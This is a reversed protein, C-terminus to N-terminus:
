ANIVHWDLAVTCLPEAGTETVVLPQETRMGGIGPVYLHVGLAMSMGARFEATNWINIKPPVRACTGLGHGFIPTSCESFGYSDIKDRAKKTVDCIRVGPKIEDLLVDLASKWADHVQWQDVSPRGLIANGALDALYLDYMTHVDLIINDGMDVTKRTAPQTVGWRYSTRHGSGVETGATISWTWENGAVRAAGAIAGAITTEQVGVEISDLGAQFGAEAIIAAQKLAKVENAEKILMCEDLEDLFDIFRVGTLRDQLSNFEAATLVGPPVQATCAPGLELGITEKEFGHIKLFEEIAGVLGYSGAYTHVNEDPLGCEESVRASDHEWVLLDLRNPTVITATRWPSFVGLFYSHIAQRTAILVDVSNQRMLLRVSDIRGGNVNVDYM